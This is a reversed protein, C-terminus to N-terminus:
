PLVRLAEDAVVWNSNLQAQVAPMEAQKGQAKLAKGLGNLAWGSGVHEALEARYSAEAAVAQGEQLQMAALRLRAGGALMPPESHDADTAADAAKAQL